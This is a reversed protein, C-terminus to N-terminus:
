RKGGLNRIRFLKVLRPVYDETTNVFLYNAQQQQCLKELAARKQEFNGSLKGQFEASSTNVWITKQTEKDLLPVIGLAPLATEREDAVHIVILDHKRAMAKLTPEYNEDVFDSVLVIISKRRIISMALHMAKTLNTKFSQPALNFMGGLMQYAHKAGKKPKIYKERQNSFCLLGVSSGEKLASFTLVGCIERGIDIKQANQKGIYQSGSVDLIFFVNQEKEEKFTKIYVDHGKASVNWDITRVDDGYQYARVDDFELGSGKFVSHFDGQMKSNVAKRVRIEYKRLKYLLERFNEM